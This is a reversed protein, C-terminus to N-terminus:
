RSARRWGSLLAWGYAAALEAGHAAAADRSTFGSAELTERGDRWCVMVGWTRLVPHREVFAVARSRPFPIVQSRM